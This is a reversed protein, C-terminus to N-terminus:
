IPLPCFVILNLIAHGTPFIKRYCYSPYTYKKGKQLLKDILNFHKTETLKILPERRLDYVKLSVIGWLVTM